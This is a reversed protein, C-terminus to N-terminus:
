ATLASVAHEVHRRRGRNYPLRALLSGLMCTNSLAAFALGGGIAASLWKAAPFRTSALVGGLVISGAVLRVQRELAWRPEGREVEGAAQQWAVMGGELVHVRPMGAATLMGHAQEARSGMQCVVVVTEECSALQDRYRPLRDLPVNVASPIRCTSYESATRVDLLRIGDPETRRIQQVDYPSVRPPLSRPSEAHSAPRAATATV